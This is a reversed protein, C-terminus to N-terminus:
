YIRSLIVFSVYMVAIMIGALLGLIQLVGVQIVQLLVITILVTVVGLMIFFSYFMGREKIKRAREDNEKFQPHLYSLCFCMIAVGLFIFEFGRVAGTGLMILTVFLAILIGAVSFANIMPLRSSSM